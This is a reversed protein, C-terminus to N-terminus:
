LVAGLRCDVESMTTTDSTRDSTQQITANGGNKDECDQAAEGRAVPPWRLIQKAGYAGLRQLVPDLILVSDVERYGLDILSAADITDWDPHNAAVIVGVAGIRSADGTFEHLVGIDDCDDSVGARGGFHRRRRNVVVAM